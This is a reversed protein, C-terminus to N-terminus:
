VVHVDHHRHNTIFFSQNLSFKSNPENSIEETTSAHKMIVNIKPRHIISNLKKELLEQYCKVIDGETYWLIYSLFWNNRAM